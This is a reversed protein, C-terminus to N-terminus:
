AVTLTVAKDASLYRMPRVSLNIVEKTDKLTCPQEKAVDLNCLETLPYSEKECFLTGNEITILQYLNSHRKFNTPKSFLDLGVDRRSLCAM